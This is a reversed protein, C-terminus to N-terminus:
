LTSNGATYCIKESVRYILIMQVSCHVVLSFYTWESNLGTQSEFTIKIILDGELTGTLKIPMHITLQLDNINWNAQIM